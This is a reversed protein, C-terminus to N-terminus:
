AEDGGFKNVLLLLAIGAVLVSLLGYHNWFGRQAHDMGYAPDASLAQEVNAPLDAYTDEGMVAVLKCNWTWADAWFVGFHDCKYGAKVTNLEPNETSLKQPFAGVEFLENGTNFLLIGKAQAPAACLVSLVFAFVISTFKM